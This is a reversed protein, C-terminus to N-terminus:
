PFGIPRPRNKLHPSPEETLLCTALRSLAECQRTVRECLACIEYALARLEDDSMRDAPALGGARTQLKGSIAELREQMSPWPLGPGLHRLNYLWAHRLRVSLHGPGATLSRMADWMKEYAFETSVPM